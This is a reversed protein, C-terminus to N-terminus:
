LLKPEYPIIIKETPEQFQLQIKGPGQSEIKYWDNTQRVNSKEQMTQDSASTALPLYLCKAQVGLRSMKSTTSTSPAKPSERASRISTVHSASNGLM